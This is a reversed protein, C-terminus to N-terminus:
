PRVLLVFSRAPLNQRPVVADGDRSPDFGRFVHVRVELLDDVFADRAGVRSGGRGDAATGVRARNLVLAVSYGERGPAPLTVRHRYTPAGDETSAHDASDLTWAAAAGSTAADLANPAVGGAEGHPFCVRLERDYNTNGPPGWPLLVCGPDARAQDYPPLAVPGAGGDLRLLAYRGQRGGPTTFTGVGRALGERVAEAARDAIEAIVGPEPDPEPEPLAGPLAPVTGASLYVLGAVLLAFGAGIAETRRRAPLLHETAVVSAALLAAGLVPLTPLGHILVVAVLGLALAVYIARRTGGRASALVVAAGVVGAVPALLDSRLAIALEFKAPLRVGVEESFRKVSAIMEVNAFAAAGIGGALALSAALAVFARPLPRPAEDGHEEDGREDDGRERQDESM